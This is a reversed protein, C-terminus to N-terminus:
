EVAASVLLLREGSEEARRARAQLDRRDGRESRVLSGIVLTEGPSVVVRTEAAATEIRGDPGLRDHFPRLALEIRGDGLLRPRAEFGSEASVLQTSEHVVRGHPGSRIRRSTFPASVGSAIRGSEGELIRLLGTQAGDRKRHTEELGVSVWTGAHKGPGGLSGVRFSGAEIRWDIRVGRAAFSAADESAYRLVVTRLRVDLAALLTLASEVGAPEGSLVLSNTRADAVVRGEAGLVTEVLPVLEGAVRHRVEYVRVVRAAAPLALGLALLLLVGCLPASPIPVPSRMM